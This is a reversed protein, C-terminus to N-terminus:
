CHLFPLCWQHTSSRFLSCGVSGSSCPLALSTRFFLHILSCKISSIAQFLSPRFGSYYTFVKVTFNNLRLQALFQCHLANNSSGLSRLLSLFPSHFKGSLSLSILNYFFSLLKDWFCHATKELGQQRVKSSISHLNLLEWFSLFSLLFFASKFSREM